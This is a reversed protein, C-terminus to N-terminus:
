RSEIKVFSSWFARPPLLNTQKSQHNDVTKWKWNLTSKHYWSALHLLANKVYKTM